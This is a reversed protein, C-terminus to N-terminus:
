LELVFVDDEHVWGQQGSPLAVRVWQGSHERWRLESGENLVFRVDSRRDTGTRVQTDDHNVVVVRRPAVLRLTWSTGLAVTVLGCVAFFWRYRQSRRRLVFAISWLTPSLTVILWGLEAPSLYYHWFFLGQLAPSPSPPAVADKAEARVLELNQDIRLDRPANAQAMRFAAIARGLAGKRYATNGLNL